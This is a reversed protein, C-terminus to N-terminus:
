EGRDIGMEELTQVSVVRDLWNELRKPDKTNNVVEEIGESVDGFRKHVQRLLTTRLSQLRGELRGKKRGQAEVVEAMSRGM